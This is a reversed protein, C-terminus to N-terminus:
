ATLLQVWSVSQLITSYIGWTNFYEGVAVTTNQASYTQLTSDLGSLTMGDPEDHRKGRWCRLQNPDRQRQRTASTM